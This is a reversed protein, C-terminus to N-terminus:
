NANSRKSVKQSSFLHQWQARYGQNGTSRYLYKYSKTPPFPLLPAAESNNSAVFCSSDKSCFVKSRNSFNQIEQFAILLHSCHM